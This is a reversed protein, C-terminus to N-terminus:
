NKYTITIKRIVDYNKAIQNRCKKLQQSRDTGTIKVIQGNTSKAPKLTRTYLNPVQQGTRRRTSLNICYGQGKIRTKWGGGTSTLTETGGTGTIGQEHM